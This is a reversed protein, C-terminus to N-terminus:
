HKRAKHTTMVDAVLQELIERRPQATFLPFLLEPQTHVPAAHIRRKREYFPQCNNDVDLIELDLGEFLNAVQAAM